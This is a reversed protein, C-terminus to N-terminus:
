PAIETLTHLDHRDKQSSHGASGTARTRNHQGALLAGRVRWQPNCTPRQFPSAPRSSATLTSPAAWPIQLTQGRRVTALSGTCNATYTRQRVRLASAAEPRALTGYARSRKLVGFSFLGTSSILYSCPRSAPPLTVNVFYRLLRM